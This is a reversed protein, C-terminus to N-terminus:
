ERVLGGLVGLEVCSTRGDRVVGKARAVLLGLLAEEFGRGRRLGQVELLLIRIEGQGLLDLLFRASRKFAQIYPLPALPSPPSITSTSTTRSIKPRRLPLEHPALSDDLDDLMQLLHVHQHSTLFTQAIQPHLQSLAAWCWNTSSLINLLTQAATPNPNWLHSPHTPSSTPNNLSPFSPSLHLTSPNPEWNFVPFASRRSLTPFPSGFAIRRPAKSKAAIEQTKAPISDQSQTHQQSDSPLFHQKNRQTLANGSNATRTEDIIYGIYSSDHLEPFTAGAAISAHRTGNVVGQAPHQSQTPFATPVSLRSRSNDPVDDREIRETLPPLGLSLSPQRRSDPASLNVTESKDKKKKELPLPIVPQIRGPTPAPVM